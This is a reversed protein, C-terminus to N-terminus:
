WGGGRLRDAFFKMIPLVEERDRPMGVEKRKWRVVSVNKFERKVLHEEEASVQCLLVHTDSKERASRSSVMSMPLGGGISVVGKFERGAPKGRESASVDVVRENGLRAALGLALSGGQGFGFILIDAMDWGCKDVLVGRM